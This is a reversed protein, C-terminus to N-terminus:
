RADEIIDSLVDLIKGPNSGINVKANCSLSCVLAMNYPHHIIDVGYKALNMKSKPIRHALQAENFKILKHCVECRGDRDFYIMEKKDQAQMKQRYNM